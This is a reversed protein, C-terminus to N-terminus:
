EVSTLFADFYSWMADTKLQKRTSDSRSPDGIVNEIPHNKIWRGLLEFPTHSPRLNSTSGQSNSKASPADQDISTSAHSSTPDIPRLAVAIPVSSVVSLPPNFLEDFM